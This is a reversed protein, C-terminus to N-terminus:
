CNPNYMRCDVFLLIDTHVVVIIITIGLMTENLLLIKITVIVGINKFELM